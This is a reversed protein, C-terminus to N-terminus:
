YKKRRIAYAVGGGIAAVGVVGGGILLPYNTADTSQAPKTDSSASGSDSKKKTNSTNPDSKKGTAAIKVKDATVENKGEADTFYDGCVTCTWYEINGAETETAAKAEHKELTHGKAAISIPNSIENAGGEDSFLSGCISCEWYKFLWYFLLM